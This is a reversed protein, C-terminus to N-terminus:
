REGRTTRYVIVTVVMSIGIWLLQYWYFFPIEFLTAERKNYIPPVLSGLLPLVLLWNWPNLNLRRTPREGSTRQDSPRDRPPEAVEHAM